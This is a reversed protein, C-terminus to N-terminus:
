SSASGAAPPMARLLLQYADLLAAPTLAVWPGDGGRILLASRGVDVSIEYATGDPGTADAVSHRLFLTHRPYLEAEVTFPRTSAPPKPVLVV